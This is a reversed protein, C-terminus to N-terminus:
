GHTTAAMTIALGSQTIMGTLPDVADARASTLRNVNQGTLGHPVSIAGPVIDETIRLAATIAGSGSTITVEQGDVFGSADSPNCWLAADEHGRAVDRLASNMRRVVRRPIAVLPAPTRAGYSAFQEVLLAPAIRWRGEPLVLDHVWGRTRPPENIVVREDALAPVREICKAMGSRQDTHAALGMRGALEGLVEVLLRREAGPAVVADTRQATIVPSFRDTFWNVDDRELQGAVALVHTAQAVTDAEIVDAVALVDLRAFARELRGTDPLSTLPDGGIVLLARVNGSEIEDALAACPREGFRSPLEPRSPAGDAIRGEVPAAAVGSRDLRVFAGPNFWAGHAHEFSGTLIQIAWALWETVNATASMTTGTGTVITVHGADRVATVLADIAAADLGTRAAAADRSWPAVAARLADVGAVHQEIYEGDAGHELLSRVVYALLAADSGPRVALHRTALRATETRRPDIVWLGPGGALRRLADVPDVLAGAHGHSVVPNTGVLVTLGAQDVDIAPLLGGFGGVLEAVTLRAIADVTIASYRSRSGLERLMAEAQMRGFADMWSWTGFYVAVADPGSEEVIDRLRAALDGLTDDWTARERGLRPHDLRHPHHHFAGLARGKPCSYGRTVPHARDGRVRVVDPGDTTVVLGCLVPCIRCFTHHDVPGSDRRSTSPQLGTM